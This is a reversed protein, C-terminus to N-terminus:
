CHLAKQTLKTNLALTAVLHNMAKNPQTSNEHRLMDLMLMDHTAYKEYANM